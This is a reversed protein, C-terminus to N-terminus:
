DISPAPRHRPSQGGTAAWTPGPFRTGCLASSTRKRAVGAIGQHKCNKTIDIWTLVTGVAGAPPTPAGPGQRMLVAGHTDIQDGVYALVAAIKTGLAARRNTDMREAKAEIRAAANGREPVGYRYELRQVDGWPTDVDVHDTFTEFKLETFKTEFRRKKTLMHRVPCDPNDPSDSIIFATTQADAEWAGSGRSTLKDLDGRALAKALHAVIWIPAGPAGVKLASMIAGVASADNENEVDFCANSTDFVILPKTPYACPGPITFKAVLKAVLEQTAAADRRKAQLIHFHGNDVLGCHKVLGARIRRAQATDETFYVVHRPLKTLVGDGPLEGSAISALPVLLSTKGVGHAGAINTVGASLFAEIVYEVPEFGTLRVVTAKLPSPPTLLEALDALDDDDGLDTFGTGEKDMKARATRVEMWLYDLAASYTASDDRRPRHREGVALAHESDQLYSFATADDYRTVLACAAAFTARSGDNHKPLKGHVLFDQAHPPLGADSLDGVDVLDPMPGDAAKTAAQSGYTDVLQAIFEPATNVSLPTGALHNGTVTLFRGGNGAYIEMESSFYDRPM